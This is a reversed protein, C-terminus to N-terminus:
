CELPEVFRRVGQHAGTSHNCVCPARSHDTRQQRRFAGSAASSSVSCRHRQPPATSGSCRRHAASVAKRVAATLPKLFIDFTLRLSSPFHQTAGVPSVMEAFPQRALQKGDFPQKCLLSSQYTNNSELQVPCRGLHITLKQTGNIQIM